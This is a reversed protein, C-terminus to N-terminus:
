FERHYDSKSMYEEEKRFAIISGYPALGLLIDPETFEPKLLYRVRKPLLQAIRWIVWRIPMNSFAMQETSCRFVSYSRNTIIFRCVKRIAERNTDHIAVVGGVNLLRDVYFFDILTYDFTHWGDIFAFDIRVGQDELKPLVLHSQAEYFHTMKQYGAKELNYLGIGKREKRNNFGIGKESSFQKPDITILSANPTKALADCIFLSSVGYGLGIDVCEIPNIDRIIKQLFAGEELSIADDVKVRNGDPSWTYGSHMIEDLVPNM